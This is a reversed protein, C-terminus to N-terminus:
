LCFSISPPLTTRHHLGRLTANEANQINDYYEYMYALGTRQPQAEVRYNGSPMGAFTYSGDVPSTTVLGYGSVNTNAAHVIADGLPTTGDNEFVAGSISGDQDIYVDDFEVKM